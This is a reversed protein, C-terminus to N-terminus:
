CGRTARSWPVGDVRKVYNGLFLGAGRWAFLAHGRSFSIALSRDAAFRPSRNLSGLVEPPDGGLEDQRFAM